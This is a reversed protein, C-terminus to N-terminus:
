SAAAAQIAASKLLAAQPEPRFRAARKSGEMAAIAALVEAGYGESRWRAGFTVRGRADVWGIARERLIIFRAAALERAAATRSGTIDAIDDLDWDIPPRLTLRPTILITM